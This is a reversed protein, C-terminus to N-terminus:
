TINVGFEAAVVQLAGKRDILGKHKLRKLEVKKGIEEKTLGTKLSIRRVREIYDKGSGAKELREMELHKDIHEEPSLLELNEPNNNAKNGDRHHVEYKSFPLPYKKRDKLYIKHYAVKRHWLDSHNSERLYGKKDTKM